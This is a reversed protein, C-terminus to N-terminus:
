TSPDTFLSWCTVSSCTHMHVHTHTHTRDRAAGTTSPRPQSLLWRSYRVISRDNTTRCMTTWTWSSSSSSSVDSSLRLFSLPQSLSHTHSHTVPFSLLAAAVPFCPLLPPSLVLSSDPLPSVYVCVVFPLCLSLSSHVAVCFSLSFFLLLTKQKNAQSLGGSYATAHVRVLPRLDPHYLLFGNNTTMFSYGNVGLQRMSQKRKHKIANAHTIKNDNWNRHNQKRFLFFCLSFLYLSHSTNHTRSLVHIISFAMFFAFMCVFVAVRVCTGQICPCIKPDGQHTCGSRGSGASQSLSGTISRCIFSSTMDSTTSHRSPLSRLEM